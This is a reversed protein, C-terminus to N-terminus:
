VVLRQEDLIRGPNVQNLYIRIPVDQSDPCVSQDGAREEDLIRVPIVQNLYMRGPTPAGEFYM